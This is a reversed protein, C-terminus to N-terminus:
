GHDGQRRQLEALVRKAAATLETLRDEGAEALELLQQAVYKRTAYTDLEPPLSACARELAVSLDAQVRETLDHLTEMASM